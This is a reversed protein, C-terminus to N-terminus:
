ESYFWPTDGDGYKKAPYRMPVPMVKNFAELASSKAKTKANAKGDIVSQQEASANVETRAMTAAARRFPIIVGCEWNRCNLKPMKTQRDKVLRGWASESCNASGIYVWSKCDSVHSSTPTHPPSTPYVYIIKNHMLMGDRRSRCDRLLERPFTAANWWKSQFCITGGNNSGGTSARVTESSPFYIRFGAAKQDHANQQAAQM